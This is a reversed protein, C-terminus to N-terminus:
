TSRTGRRCISRTITFYGDLNSLSSFTQDLNTTGGVTVTFRM